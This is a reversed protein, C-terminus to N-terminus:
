AERVHLRELPQPRLEGGLCRLPRGTRAGDLLEVGPHVGDALLQDLLGRLGPHGRLELPMLPRGLRREVDAGEVNMAVDWTGIGLGVLVLGPVAVPVSVLVLAIGIGTERATAISRVIRVAGSSGPKVPATTTASM